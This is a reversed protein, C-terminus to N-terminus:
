RRRRSILGLAILALPAIGFTSAGGIIGVSCAGGDDSGKAPTAPTTGTDPNAVVGGTDAVVPSGTDSPQTGSDKTGADTDGSCTPAAAYAKLGECTGSAWSTLQVGMHLPYPDPTTKADCWAHLTGPSKAGDGYGACNGTGIASAIEKWELRCLDLQGAPCEYYFYGRAGASYSPPVAGNSRAFVGKIIVRTATTADGANPEFTVAEVDAWASAPNSALAISPAALLALAVSAAVLKNM